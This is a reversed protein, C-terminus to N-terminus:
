IYMGMHHLMGIRLIAFTHAIVGIMGAAILIYMVTMGYAEILWKM